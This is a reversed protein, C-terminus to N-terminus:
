AVVVTKELVQTQLSAFTMLCAALFLRTVLTGACYRVMVTALTAIPLGIWALTDWTFYQTALAFSVLFLAWVVGLLLWDAKVYLKQLLEDTSNM